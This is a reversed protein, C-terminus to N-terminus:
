QAGGERAARDRLVEILHAMEAEGGGDPTLAVLRAKADRVEVGLEDCILSWVLGKVRGDVLALDRAASWGGKTGIAALLQEVEAWWAPREVPAVPPAVPPAAEPVVPPAADEATAGQVPDYEAPDLRQLGGREGGLKGSNKPAEQAKLIRSYLNYSTSSHSRGLAEAIQRVSKGKSRLSLALADEEATWPPGNRDGAPVAEPVTEAPTPAGEIVPLPAGADAACPPPPAAPDTEDEIPWAGDDEPADEPEPPPSPIVGGGEGDQGSECSPGESAPTGEALEPAAPCGGPSLPVDEDSSVTDVELCAKVCAAFVRLASFKGARAPEYKGAVGFEKTLEEVDGGWLSVIDSDTMQQRFSHVLGDVGRLVYWGDMVGLAVVPCGAYIEGKARVAVPPADDQAAHPNHLPVQACAPATGSWRLLGWRALWEVMRRYSYPDRALADFLDLLAPLGIAQGRYEAYIESTDPLM